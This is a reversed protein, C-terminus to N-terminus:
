KYRPAPEARSKAGPALPPLSSSAGSRTGTQAVAAAEESGARRLEARQASRLAPPRTKAAREAFGRSLPHTGGPVRIHGDEDVHLNSTVSELGAACADCLAVREDLWAADDRLSAYEAWTLGPHMLLVGSPVVGEGTEDSFVTGPANANFFSVVSLPFLVHQRALFSIDEGEAVDGCLRCRHSAQRMRTVTDRLHNASAAGPRRSKGPAPTSANSISATDGVTSTDDHRRSRIPAAHASRSRQQLAASKNAIVSLTASESACKQNLHMIRINSCFLVWPKNNDDIKVHLVLNTVNVGHLIEIHRAISSCLGELMNTTHASVLPVVRVFRSAESLTTREDLSNQRNPGDSRLDLDNHRKEVYLVNPTWNAM